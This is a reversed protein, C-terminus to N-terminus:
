SGNLTYSVNMGGTTMDFYSSAVVVQVDAGSNLNFEYCRNENEPLEILTPRNTNYLPCEGERIYVISFISDPETATVRVIFENSKSYRRQENDISLSGDPESQWVIDERVNYRESPHVEYKVRGKIDTTQM